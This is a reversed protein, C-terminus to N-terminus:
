DCHELLEGDDEDESEPPTSPPTGWLRRNLEIKKSRVMARICVNGQGKEIISELMTIAKKLYDIKDRGDLQKFLTLLNRETLDASINIMSEELIKDVIISRDRCNDERQNIKRSDASHQRVPGDAAEDSSFQPGSTPVEPDPSAEPPEVMAYEKSDEYYYFDDDDRAKRYFNSSGLVLAHRNRWLVKNSPFFGKGKRMRGYAKKVENLSINYRPGKHVPPEQMDVREKKVPQKKKNCIKRLRLNHKKAKAEPFVNQSPGM